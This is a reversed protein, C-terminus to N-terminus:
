PGGGLAGYCENASSHPLATAYAGRRAAAEGDEFPGAVAPAATACVFLILLLKLLCM